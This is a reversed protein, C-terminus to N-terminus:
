DQAPALWLYDARIGDRFSPALLPGLDADAVGRTDVQSFALVSSVGRARLRDPLGGGYQVHFEGVIIVLVQDPHADLFEKAKWAMTDDWLSQATFLRDMADKPVQHPVNEFFRTRYSDRGVHFNPPLLNIEEASLSELGTKGIKSVLSRPANLAVTMGGKKGNPFHVQDRYYSFDMAGWHSDKLFEGEELQGARYLNLLAQDPYSFFEMGVSVKLGLYDLMQLIVMQQTQHTRLGHNEGIIVVSGPKVGKLADDLVVASQTAGSFLGAPEAM